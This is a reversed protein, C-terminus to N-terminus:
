EYNIKFSNFAFTVFNSSLLLITAAGAIFTQADFLLQNYFSYGVIIAYPILFPLDLFIILKGFYERKDKNKCYRFLFLINFFFFVIMPVFTISDVFLIDLFSHTTNEGFNRSFRLYLYIAVLICTWIILSSYIRQESTLVKKIENDRTFAFFSILTHLIIAVEWTFFNSLHWGFRNQLLNKTDKVELFWVCGGLIISTVVFSFSYRVISKMFQQRSWNTLNQWM